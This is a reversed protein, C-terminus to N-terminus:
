GGAHRRPRKQLARRPRRYDFASGRQRSADAIQRDGTTPAGKCLVAPHRESMSNGESSAARSTPSSGVQTRAGDVLRHGYSLALHAMQRVAIAAGHAPSRVVVAREVVVGLGLIGVQPPSSCPRCRRSPEPPAPARRTRSRADAAAAPPRHPTRQVGLVPLGAPDPVSRLPRRSQQRGGALSPAAPSCAAPDPEAGPVLRPRRGGVGPGDNANAARAM